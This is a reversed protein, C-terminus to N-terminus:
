ENSEGLAQKAVLSAEQCDGCCTSSAISQLAKHLADRKKKIVLYIDHDRALEARLFAIEKWAIKLDDTTTM